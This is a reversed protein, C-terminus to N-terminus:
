GTGPDPVPLVATASGAAVGRAHTAFAESM